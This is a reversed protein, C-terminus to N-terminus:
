LVKKKIWNYLSKRVFKSIKEKKIKNNDYLFQIIEGINKRDDVSLCFLNHIVDIVLNKKDIKKKKNNTIKNEVVNCILLILENNAKGLKDFNPIKERIINNIDQVLTNYIVYSKLSNKFKLDSLEISM